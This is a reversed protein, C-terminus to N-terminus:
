INEPLTSLMPWLSDNLKLLYYWDVHCLLDNIDKMDDSDNQGDIDNQGVQHNHDIIYSPYLNDSM